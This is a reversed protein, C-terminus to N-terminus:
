RFGIADLDEILFIYAGNVVDKPQNEIYKIPLEIPYFSHWVEAPNLSPDDSYISTFCLVM